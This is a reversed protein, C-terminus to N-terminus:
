VLVWARGKKPNSNWPEYRERMYLTVAQLIRKRSLPLGPLEERIKDSLYHKSITTQGRSSLEGLIRDLTPYFRIDIRDVRYLDGQNIAM